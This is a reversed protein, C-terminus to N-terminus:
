DKSRRRKLTAVVIIDGVKAGTCFYHNVVKAYEKDHIDTVIYDHVTKSRFMAKVWKPLAM